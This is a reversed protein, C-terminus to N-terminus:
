WGAQAPSAPAAASGTRVHAPVAGDVHILSLAMGGVRERGLELGAINIRSEGLLTGIKGVVGPVDRNHLLLIHGEPVAEMRFRDIKTLRVTGAGFVAGEVGVTRSATRVQVALANLYDSTEPARSEIV